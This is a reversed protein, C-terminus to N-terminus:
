MPSIGKDYAKEARGTAIAAYLLVGILVFGVAIPPQILMLFMWAGFAGWALVIRRVFRRRLMAAIAAGAMILFAITWLLVQIDDELASFIRGGEARRKIGELMKREMVFHVTDFAVDWVFFDGIVGLHPQRPGRSRAILRTRGTTTARVVLAWGPSYAIAREPEVYLTTRTVPPGHSCFRFEDGTKPHDLEPLLRDVSHIDCQFLANELVDYSYFGGRGQGVQAIWPWVDEVPADITIARTAGDGGAPEVLRDTPDAEAVETPTAGWHLFWPRIGFSYICLAAVASVAVAFFRTV